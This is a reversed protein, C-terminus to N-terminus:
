HRGAAREGDENIRPKLRFAVLPVGVSESLLEFEGARTPIPQPTKITLRPV